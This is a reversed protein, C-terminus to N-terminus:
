ATGMTRTTRWYRYEITAFYMPQSALGVFCAPTHLTAPTWHASAEFVAMLEVPSAGAGGVAAAAATSAEDLYNGGKTSLQRIAQASHPLVQPNRPQSRAQMEDCHQCWLM